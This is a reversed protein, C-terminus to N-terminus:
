YNFLKSLLIFSNLLILMTKIIIYIKLTGSKREVNEALFKPNSKAIVIGNIKRKKGATNIIPVAKNFLDILTGYKKIVKAVKNKNIKSSDFNNLPSTIISKAYGYVSDIM